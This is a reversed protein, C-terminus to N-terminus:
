ANGKNEWDATYGDTVGRQRKQRLYIGEFVAATTEVICKKGKKDSVLDLFDVPDM